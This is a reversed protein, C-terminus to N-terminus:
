YSEEDEDDYEVARIFNPLDNIWNEYQSFTGFEKEYEELSILQWSLLYYGVSPRKNIKFSWMLLNIIYDPINGQLRLNLGLSILASSDKNKIAEQNFENYKDPILGALKYFAHSMMDKIEMLFRIQENKDQQVQAYFYKFLTNTDIYDIIQNFENIAKEKQGLFYALMGREFPGFKDESYNLLYNLLIVDNIYLTMDYGSSNNFLHYLALPHKLHSAKIVQKLINDVSYILSSDLNEPEYLEYPFLCRAKNEDTFDNPLDEISIKNMAYSGLIIYDPTIDDLSKFTLTILNEDENDNYEVLEAHIAYEPVDKALQIQKNSFVDEGNDKSTAVIYIIKDSKEM